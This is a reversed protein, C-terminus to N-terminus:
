IRMSGDTATPLTVRTHTVCQTPWPPIAGLCMLHYSAPSAPLGTCRAAEEARAVAYGGTPSGPEAGPEPGSGRADPRPDDLRGELSAARAVGSDGYAARKRHEVPAPPSVRAAKNAAPVPDSRAATSSKREPNAPDTHQGYPSAGRPLPQSDTQRQAV